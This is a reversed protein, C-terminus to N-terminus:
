VTSGPWVPPDGDVIPGATFLTPGDLTGAQIAARWTLHQPSGFMDRVTTVGNLLELAFDHDGQLHVHMDALGPVIWKGHADVTTARTPDITASPAVIAIRDGRVVVTQDPLSGPRDMPVVTAGVFAVDGPQLQQKNAPPPSSSRCAISAAMVFLALRFSM